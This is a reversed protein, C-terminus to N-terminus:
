LFHQQFMLVRCLFKKIFYGCQFVCRGETVILQGRLRQSRAAGVVVAFCGLLDNKAKM